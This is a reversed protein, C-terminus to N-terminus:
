QLLKNLMPALLRYTSDDYSGALRAALRGERDIVYTSPFIRVGWDRTISMDVDRLQRYGLGYQQVFARAQGDNDQMDIGVFVVGRASYDRWLRALDPAEGPCTPCWSAWFNLVVIQGRYDTLSVNQNDFDTARAPLEPPRQSPDLLKAIPMSAANAVGTQATPPPLPTRTATPTPTPTPTPISTSTATATATPVPTSTPSELNTETPAAPLVSDISTEAVGDPGFSWEAAGVRFFVWANTERWTFLGGSTTAQIIWGDATASADGACDGAIESGLAAQLEAFVPALECGAQARTPLSLVNAMLLVSIALTARVRAPTM